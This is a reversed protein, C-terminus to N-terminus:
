VILLTYTQIFSHKMIKNKHNRLRRDRLYHRCQVAGARRHHEDRHRPTHEAALHGRDPVGRPRRRPERVNAKQSEVGVVHLVAKPAGRVVHDPERRKQGVPLQSLVHPTERRGLEVANQHRLHRPLLVRRNPADAAVGVEEAVVEGVGHRM